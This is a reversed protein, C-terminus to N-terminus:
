VLSLAPRPRAYIPSPALGRLEALRRLRQRNREAAVNLRARAAEGQRLAFGIRDRRPEAAHVADLSRLRAVSVELASTAAEVEEVRGADLAAILAAQAAIVAEVGVDATM